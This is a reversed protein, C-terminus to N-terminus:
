LLIVQVNYNIKKKYIFKSLIHKSFYSINKENTQFQQIMPVYIYVNVIGFIYAIYGTSKNCTSKEAINGMM